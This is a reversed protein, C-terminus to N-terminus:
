RSLTLTGTDGTCAGASIADYTGSMQNGTLTGTVTVDIAGATVAATFTDAVLSGSISGSSFCPSNTFSVTGTVSDGSQTLDLVGAGGVGSRSLWTGTWTGVVASSNSATGPLDESTGGCGIAASFILSLLVTRM